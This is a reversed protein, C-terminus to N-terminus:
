APALLRCGPPTFERSPSPAPGHPNDLVRDVGADPDRDMRDGAVFGDPCLGISRLAWDMTSHQQDHLEGPKRPILRGLIAVRLPPIRHRLWTGQADAFGCGIELESRRG